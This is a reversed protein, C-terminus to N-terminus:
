SRSHLTYFPCIGTLYSLAWVAQYAVDEHSSFLAPAVVHRLLALARSALLQCPFNVVEAFPKLLVRVLRVSSEVVPYPLTCKTPTNPPSPCTHELPAAPAPAPVLVSFWDVLDEFLRMGDLCLEM